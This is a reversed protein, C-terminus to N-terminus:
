VTMPTEGYVGDCHNETLAMLEDYLSTECVNDSCRFDKKTVTAHFSLFAFWSSCACSLALRCHWRSALSTEVGQMLSMIWPMTEPGAFSGAKPGITGRRM